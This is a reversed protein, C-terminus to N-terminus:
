AIGIEAVAEALLRTAAPLALFVGPTLTDRLALLIPDRALILHTSLDTARLVSHGWASASWAM